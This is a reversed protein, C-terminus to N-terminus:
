RLDMCIFERLAGMWPRGQYGSLGTSSGNRGTMRATVGVNITQGFVVNLEPELGSVVLDPLPEGAETSLDKYCSVAATLILLYALIRKKM